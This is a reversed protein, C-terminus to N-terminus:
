STRTMLNEALSRLFAADAGFVNLADIAAATCDKAAAKARDLGLLSVYTSKQLEADSGIPKGLTKEDSTVDLIDDVIQFAQGLAEAYRVLAARKENDAGALVAGIECAARMLAGTKLSDMTQLRSLAITKGESQLDVVQGGIMGEAGACKSLLAIAELARAPTKKAAESNAAAAFAQTLLADGALVATAEGFVIHCAPKGRRMDDDDMCPLDDHVLSYTHIMELACAFGLAGEWDGGCLRCSELLLVPRIRKGGGDLSYRMADCVDPADYTCVPLLATLRRNIMELYSDFRKM